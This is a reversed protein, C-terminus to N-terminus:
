GPHARALFLLLAAMFVLTLVEILLAYFTLRKAQDFRAQLRSFGLRPIRKNGVYVGAIDTALTDPSDSSAQPSRLGTDTGSLFSEWWVRLGPM